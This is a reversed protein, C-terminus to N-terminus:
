FSVATVLFQGRDSFIVATVFFSRPWCFEGRDALTAATILMSRTLIFHRPIPLVSRPYRFRSLRFHTLHFTVTILSFINKLAFSHGRGTIISCAPKSAPLSISLQSCFSPRHIKPNWELPSSLNWVANSEIRDICKTSDPSQFLDPSWSWKIRARGNKKHARCDKHKHDNKQSRPWKPEGRDNQTVTAMNPSWPWEKQSMNMKIFSTMKAPRPCIQHSRGNERVMTLKNSRKRKRHGHKNQHILTWKQHSRGYLTGAAM